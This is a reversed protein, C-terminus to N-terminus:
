PSFFNWGRNVGEMPRIGVVSFFLKLSSVKKTSERVEKFHPSLLFYAAFRCIASILFLALIPNGMLPPLHKALFGGTTAGLFLATGYILNFYGLCRVRKQPTVADYIFNIVCLNFGGWIFGAYTEIIMFYIVHGSFLPSLLWLLPIFPILIGTTKLIKANGVVDAHKGWLPFAILGSLVHALQIGMYSLYDFQLDKLIYVPFFPATLFTAFTMASAFLVFKVFNSERIRKLFDIFTFHSEPSHQHHIDTMKSMLFSSVFRLIAAALFIIVFGWDPHVKKVLFLIIGAMGVSALTAFGVVQSRWGFYHGRRHAPLYDSVLSGWATAILSALIRFLALILILAEVQWRFPFDALLALPILLAAQLIAASVLFKLRSGTINVIRVAFLQCISSMLQPIAVLLGIQQTSAGLFIGFPIMYYDVIGLMMSGWIGEKWSIDLSKHIKKALKPDTHM